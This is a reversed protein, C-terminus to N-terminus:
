IQRKRKFIAERFGKSHYVGFVKENFHGNMLGVSLMGNQDLRLYQDYFIAYAIMGQAFNVKKAPGILIAMPSKIEKVLDVRAGYIGFCSSMCILLQSFEGQPLGEDMKENIQYLFTYLDNWPVQSGDTLGVANQSGHCSLHVIIQPYHGQAKLEAIEDLIKDIAGEFDALTRVISTRYDIPVSKFYEGLFAAESIGGDIQPQHLSEIIYVLTDDM